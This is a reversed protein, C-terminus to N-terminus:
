RRGVNAKRRIVILGAVLLLSIISIIIGVPIAAPAFRLELNHTGAALLLGSFGINVQEMVVEKGNDFAKWDNDFPITFLLLKDHQLTLTGKINNQRFSSVLFADKKLNDVDAALESIMYNAPVCSSSCRQMVSAYKATDADDVVVAKLFAVDKFSLSDFASRPMYHTYTYGFPLTFKHRYVHVDGTKHIFDSLATIEPPFPAKSLNYRVNCVIQLLPRDINIGDLWNTITGFYSPFVDTVKLFKVYNKQNFSSYATTGYFRQVMPDNLSKHISLGSAYSKQIRYFSSDIQHLYQVADNTYDNYGVKTITEKFSMRDRHNVSINSMFALEIFVCVALAPKVYRAAGKVAFLSILFTYLSLFVLCILQMDPNFLNKVELLNPLFLLVLLFLFTGILVKFNIKRTLDIHNLAMLTYMLLTLAFLLGLIRYYEYSCFWLVYRVVPFIVPLFAVVLLATFVWKKKKTLFPFIQTFLLMSLLGAYLMPAEFYNRDGVYYNGVGMMDSSFTRGIKTLNAALGDMKTLYDSISAGMSETRPSNLVILIKHISLFASMGFGLIGLGALHGYVRLMKWTWGYQNYLRVFVYVSVVIAYTSLNAPSTVGILAIAFPFYYWKKNLLKEVSLLLFAFYCVEAMSGWCSGAMMYGCFAFCMAGIIATYSTLKLEQLFLYFLLGATLCRLAEVAGWTYVLNEPKSLYLLLNFPDAYLNGLLNQGMGMYFTWRPIGDLNHLYDSIHFWMPLGINSSDSGIDKYFFMARIFLFDSFVYLVLGGLLALAVYFGKKYSLSNNQQRYKENKM